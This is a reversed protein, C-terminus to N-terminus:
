GETFPWARDLWTQEGEGAAGGSLYKNWKARTEANQGLFVRWAAQTSRYTYTKEAFEAADRELEANRAELAKIKKDADALRRVLKDNEGALENKRDQANKLQAVVDDYIKRLEAPSPGEQAWVATTVLLM